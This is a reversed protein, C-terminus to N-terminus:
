KVDKKTFTFLISVCQVHRKTIGYQIFKSVKLTKKRFEIIETIPLQSCSFGYYRGCLQM